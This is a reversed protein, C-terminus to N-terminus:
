QYKKERDGGDTSGDVNKKNRQLFEERNYPKEESM